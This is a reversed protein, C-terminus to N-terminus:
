KSLRILQPQGADTLRATVSGRVEYSPSTLGFIESVNGEIPQKMELQVAAFSDGAPLVDPLFDWGGTKSAIVSGFTISGATGLMEPSDATKPKLKRDLDICESRVLNAATYALAAARAGKPDAKDAQLHRVAAIAGSELSHRLETKAVYLSGIESVMITLVVLCPLFILTMMTSVGRRFDPIRPHIRQALVM